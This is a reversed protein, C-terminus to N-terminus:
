APGSERRWSPGAGLVAPVAATAPACVHFDAHETLPTAVPNIEIVIGGMALTTFPIQAAPYVLASTGISLTVAAERAWQLSREIDTSALGEGFWVVAPRLAAHCTPCRPITGTEQDIPYAEEASCGTCRTRFLSGHLRVPEPEAPRAERPSPATSTGSARGAAGPTWHHPDREKLRVLDLARDHLGDVNQTVVRLGGALAWRALTLHAENPDCGAVRRRRWSYWEWVTKPDRRFAQPTALDEPRQDNWMGEPGRFTPVGSEASIGAGTFALLRGDRLAQRVQVRLEDPLRLDTM